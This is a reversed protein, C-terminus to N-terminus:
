PARYTKFMRRNARRKRIIKHMSAKTPLLVILKAADTV